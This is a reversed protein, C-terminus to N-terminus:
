PYSQSAAPASSPSGTASSSSSGGCTLGDTPAGTSVWVKGGSKDTCYQGSVAVYSRLPAYTSSASTSYTTVYNLGAGGYALAALATGYAFGTNLGFANNYGLATTLASVNYIGLGNNFGSLGNNLGFGNGFCAFCQASATPPLAANVSVAGLVVLATITALLRSRSRDPLIHRWPRTFM